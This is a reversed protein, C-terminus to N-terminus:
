APHAHRLASFNQDRLIVRFSALQQQQRQGIAIVVQQGRGIADLRQVQQAGLV